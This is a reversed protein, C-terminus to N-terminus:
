LRYKGSQIHEGIRVEALEEPQNSPPNNAPRNPNTPSREQAPPPNQELPAQGLPDSSFFALVGLTSMDMLMTWVATAACLTPPNQEDAVWALMLKRGWISAIILIILGLVAGIIGLVVVEVGIFMGRLMVFLGWMITFYNIYWLSFAFLSLAGAVGLLGGLATGAPEGQLHAKLAREFEIRLLWLLIMLAVPVILAPLMADFLFTTSSVWWFLAVGGFVLSAVPVFTLLRFAVAVLLLLAAQAAFFGYVASGSLILTMNAAQWLPNFSTQLVSPVLGIGMIGFVIVLAMLAVALDDQWNMSSKCSLLKRLHLPNKRHGEVDLGRLHSWRQALLPAKQHLTDLGSGMLGRHISAIIKM